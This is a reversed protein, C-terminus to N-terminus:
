RFRRAVRHARSLESDGCRLDGAIRSHCICLPHGHSSPNHRRPNDRSFARPDAGRPADPRCHRSSRESLPHVDSIVRGTRLLLLAAQTNVSQVIQRVYLRFRDVPLLTMQKGNENHPDSFPKGSPNRHRFGTEEGAPTKLIVVKCGLSSKETLLPATFIGRVMGAASTVFYM